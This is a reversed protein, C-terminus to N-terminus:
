EEEGQKLAQGCNSCYEPYEEQLYEDCIPCYCSTAIVDGNINKMYRRTIKKAVQKEMAKKLEKVTGLARYQELEELAEITFDLVENKPIFVRTIKCLTLSEKAEQVTM